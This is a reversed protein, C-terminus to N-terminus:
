VKPFPCSKPSSLGFQAKCLLWPRGLFDVRRRVIFYLSLVISFPPDLFYSFTRYLSSFIIRSLVISSSSPRYLGLFYSFTRYLITSPLSIIIYASSTLSLSLFYLSFPLLSTNPPKFSSSVPCTHSTYTDFHLFSLPPAIEMKKYNSDTFFLTLHGM